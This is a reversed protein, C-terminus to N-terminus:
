ILQLNPGSLKGGPKPFSVGISKGFAKHLLKGLKVFLPLGEIKAKKFLVCLHLILM